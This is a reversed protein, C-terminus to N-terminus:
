SKLAQQDSFPSVYKFLGLSSLALKSLHTYSKFKWICKGAIQVDYIKFYEMFM